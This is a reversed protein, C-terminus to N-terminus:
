GEEDGNEKGKPLRLRSPEGQEKAVAVLEAITIPETERMAKFYSTDMGALEFLMEMGGYWDGDGDPGVALLWIAKRLKSTEKKTM